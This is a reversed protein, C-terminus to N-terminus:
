EPFRTKAYRRNMIITTVNPNFYTSWLSLNSSTRILLNCRSLLLADILAEKGNDFSRATTFHIGKAGNTRSANTALVNNPFVKKIALLFDAEDTAVFIKYSSNFPVHEKIKNFMSEYTVRPAELVKDTGRYHVGIVFFGEYHDHVFQGVRKQIWPLPHIYKKVIYHIESITIQKRAAYANMNETMNLPRRRSSVSKPSVSIPEFYYHWWNNGHEEDYYLGSTGFDVLLGSGEPLSRNEYLYLEGLIRDAAAFMGQYHNYGHDGLLLVESFAQFSLTALILATFASAMEHRERVHGRSKSRVTSGTSIIPLSLMCYILAERCNWSGPGGHTTVCERACWCVCM